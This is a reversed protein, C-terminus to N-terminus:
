RKMDSSAQERLFGIFFSKVYHSYPNQVDIERVVGRIKELRTIIAHVDRYTATAFKEVDIGLEEAIRVIADRYAFLTFHTLVQVVAMAKEHEELTSIVSEVGITKWLSQVYDIVVLGTKSPILVVREGYPPTYPGFLPHTSVYSFGHHESLEELHKFVATKSSLIDMVVKGKLLHAIKDVYGELFAQISLALIAVNCQPLAEEVSSSTAGLKEAIERAKEADRGTIIVNYGENMFAQSLMAAMAGYGVMCITRGKPAVNSQMKVQVSRSLKLISKAIDNLADIPLNHRVGLARWYMLVEEERILDLVLYGQKKKLEGIKKAIEMRKAILELITSDIKELERRLNAIEVEM